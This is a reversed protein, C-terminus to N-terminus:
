YARVDNFDAIPQDKKFEFGLQELSLKGSLFELWVQEPVSFSQGYNVVQRGDTLRSISAVERITVSPPGVLSLKFTSRDISAPVQMDVVYRGFLGVKSNWTTQSEKGTVYSIFHHGDAFRSCFQRLLPITQIAEEAIKAQKEIM